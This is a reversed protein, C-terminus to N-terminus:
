LPSHPFHLVVKHTDNVQTVEIVATHITRKFYKAAVSLYEKSGCIVLATVSM